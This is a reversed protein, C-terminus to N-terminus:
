LKRPFYHPCSANVPFNRKKATSICDTRYLVRAPFTLSFFISAYFCAHSKKACLFPPRLLTLLFLVSLCRFSAFVMRLYSLSQMYLAAWNLLKFHWSFSSFQKLLMRPGRHQRIHFYLFTTIQRLLSWEIRRM